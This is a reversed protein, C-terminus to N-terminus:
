VSRPREYHSLPDFGLLPKNIGLMGRIALDLIRTGASLFFFFAV